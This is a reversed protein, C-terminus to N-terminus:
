VADKAAKFAVGVCPCADTVSFFISSVPTSRVCWVLLRTFAHASVADLGPSAGCAAPWVPPWEVKASRAAGEAAPVRARRAEFEAEAGAAGLRQAELLSAQREANHSARQSETVPPCILTWLLSSDQWWRPEAVLTEFLRPVVSRSLAAAQAVASGDGDAVARRALRAVASAAVGFACTGPSCRLMENVVAAHASCLRAYAAAWVADLRQACLQSADCGCGTHVDAFLYLFRYGLM